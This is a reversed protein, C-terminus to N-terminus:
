MRYPSISGRKRHKYVRGLNFSCESRWSIGYIGFILRAWEVKNTMKVM